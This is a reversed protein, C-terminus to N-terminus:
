IRSFSTLSTTQYKNLSLHKNPFTRSNSMRSIYCIYQNAFAFNGLKNFRIGSFSLSSLKNLKGSFAYDPIEIINNRELNINEVNEFKNLVGYISNNQSSLRPNNVLGFINTVRDTGNFAMEDITELRLCDKIVIKDFTVDGFTNAKLNTIMSNSLVFM